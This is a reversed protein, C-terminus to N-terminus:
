PNLPGLGPVKSRGNVKSLLHARSPGPREGVSAPVLDERSNSKSAFHGFIIFGAVRLPTDKLNFCFVCRLRYVSEPISPGAAPGNPESVSSHLQALWRPEHDRLPAGRGRVASKM